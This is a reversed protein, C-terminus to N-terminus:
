RGLATSVKAITATDAGFARLVSLVSDIQLTTLTQAAPAAPAAPASASTGGNLLARTKPGTAGTQQLGAAKQYAMLAKQTLQGFYGSASDAALLGAEILAEQLKLVEDGRSGLGLYLSFRYTSAGLVEGAGVAGGSAGSLVVVVPGGGGGGGGGGSGQVVTTQPPRVISITTSAAVMPNGALDRAGDVVIVDTGDDKAVYSFTYHTSDTRALPAAAAASPGTIQATPTSSADIAENFVISLAVQGGPAVQASQASIVATPLNFYGYSAGAAATNANGALDSFSAAPVSLTAIGDSLGTIFFGYETSSLASFGTVTGNLVAIDSQIFGSVPESATALFFVPDSVPDTSTSVLAMTPPTADYTFNYPGFEINTEGDTNQIAGPALSFEVLGGALPVVDFSYHTGSPGALNQISANTTSVASTSFSVLPVGGIDIVVSLPANRLPAITNPSQLGIHISASAVAPALLALVLTLMPYGRLKM